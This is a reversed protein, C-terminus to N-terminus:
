MIQKSRYSYTILYMELRSCWLGMPLLYILEQSPKQRLVILRCFYILMILVKFVKLIYIQM